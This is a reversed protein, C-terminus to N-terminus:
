NFGHLVHSNSKMGTFHTGCSISRRFFSFGVHSLCTCQSPMLLTNPPWGDSSHILGKAPRLSRRSSMFRERFPPVSNETQGEWWCSSSAWQSQPQTGIRQRKGSIHVQASWWMFKFAYSQNLCPRGGSREYLHTSSSSPLSNPHQFGRSGPAPAAESLLACHLGMLSCPCHHKQIDCWQLQFPTHILPISYLDTKSRNWRSYWLRLDSQFM